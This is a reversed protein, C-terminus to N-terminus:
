QTGKLIFYPIDDMVHSMKSRICKVISEMVECVKDRYLTM